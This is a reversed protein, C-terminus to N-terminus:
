PIVKKNFYESVLLKIDSKSNPKYGRGIKSYSSFKFLLLLLYMLLGIDFLTDIFQDIEISSYVGSYQSKETRKKINEYIAIIGINFYWIGEVALNESEYQKYIRSKNNKDIQIM